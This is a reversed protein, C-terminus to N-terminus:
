VLVLAAGVGLSAVVVCLFSARGWGNNVGANVVVLQASATETYTTDLTSTINEGKRVVLVHCVSTGNELRVCELKSEEEYLGVTPEFVGATREQVFRSADGHFHSTETYVTLAGLTPDLGTWSVVQSYAYHTAGAEDVSIPSAGLISFSPYATRDSPISTEVGPIFLTVDAAYAVSAASALTIATRLLHM